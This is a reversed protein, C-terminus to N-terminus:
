LQKQDQLVLHQVKQLLIGTSYIAPSDTGTTKVTGGTLHVTGEGRDNALAACHVGNTTINVDKAIITGNYTADLGRSSNKTTNITVNSVNIISGIVLQLFLM